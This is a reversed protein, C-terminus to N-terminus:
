DRKVILLSLDDEHPRCERFHDLERRINRVLGSPSRDAAGALARALRAVGFHARDANFTETLGDTYLVLTQGRRLRIRRDAYTAEQGILKIPYGECGSLLRHGPRDGELLIPPPHGASSYTLKGSGPDLVGYFMTAYQDTPLHRCMLRNVNLLLRAPAPGSGAEMQILMRVLAMTVMSPAGHGSVDGITLGLRGGPLELLDYFDGSCETSPQYHAAFRYGAVEPLAQPLLSRQISGIAQIEANIRHNARWLESNALRLEAQLGLLREAARLRATLVRGQVPKVLCEDVGQDLAAVMDGDKGQATLMIFYLNRGGPLQRMRACLRAGDMEPMMWDSIVIRPHIREARELAEAAGTAGHVQYGERLLLNTLLKLTFPDEDVVLVVARVSEPGPLASYSEEMHALSM